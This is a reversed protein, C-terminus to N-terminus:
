QHKQHKTWQNKINKEIQQHKEKLSPSQQYEWLRGYTMFQSYIQFMGEITGPTGELWSKRSVFSDWWTSIVIRWFRWSSMPPHNQDLRNRAEVKSWELTKRTMSALNRHTLHILPTQLQGISGSIHPQEHLRGTWNLLQNKKILRIVPDPWGGAHTMKRGLFYNARNISYASTTPRTVVTQIEQALKPTVREDLDIYFLWGGTAKAAGQNRKAAFGPQSSQIIVLHDPPAITLRDPRDAVLVIEDVWVLCNLCNTLEGPPVDPGLLIVASVKTM